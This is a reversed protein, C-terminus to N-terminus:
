KYHFTAYDTTVITCGGTGTNVKYKLSYKDEGVPLKVCPFCPITFVSNDTKLYNSKELIYYKQSHIHSFLIKGCPSDFEHGKCWSGLM